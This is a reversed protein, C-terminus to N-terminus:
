TRLLQLTQFLAALGGSLRMWQTSHFCRIPRTWEKRPQSCDFLIALCSDHRCAAQLFRQLSLLDQTSQTHLELHPSVIWPTREGSCLGSLDEPRIFGDMLFGMDM